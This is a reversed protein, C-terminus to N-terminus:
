LSWSRPLLPLSPPLIKLLSWASLPAHQLTQDWLGSIIFQASILLWVSLWGYWGPAEKPGEKLLLLSSLYPPNRFGKVELGESLLLAIVCQHYSNGVLKLSPFSTEMAFIWNPFNSEKPYSQLFTYNKFSSLSQFITLLKELQPRFLFWTSQLLFSVEPVETGDKCTTLPLFFSCGWRASSKHFCM